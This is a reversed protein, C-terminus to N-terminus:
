DCTCSAPVALLQEIRDGPFCASGTFPLFAAIAENCQRCCLYPAECDGAECGQRSCFGTDGEPKICTEVGNGPCDDDAQCLTGTGDDTVPPPEGGGGPAGPIALLQPYTVLSYADELAAERHYQVNLRTPDAELSDFGARSPMHNFWLEDWPRGDGIFVGQVKFRATPYVGVRAAAEQAGSTYLDMAERGTRTPEGAGPEYQAQEHYRLVHIMEFAPDEATAPYPSQPPEFDEPLASPILETVMVITEEVGAEKHIARAQFDPHAAMAFFALPCPYEVIAVQEWGGEEGILIDGVDGVFVVRAGIASLFDIPAYLADAERGTLDTERGDPYVALERYRILNVMYFPGETPAAAMRRVQEEQIEGYGPQGSPTMSEELREMIAPDLCLDMTLTVVDSHKDDACGVLGAGVLLALLLKMHRM